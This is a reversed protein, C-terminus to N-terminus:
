GLTFSHGIRYKGDPAKEIGANLRDLRYDMTGMSGPTWLRLALGAAEVAARLEAVAPDKDDIHVSTVTIDGLHKLKLTETKEIANVARGAFQAFQQSLDTKPPMM